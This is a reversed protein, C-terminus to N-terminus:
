ARAIGQAHLERIFQREVWASGRGKVEEWGIGTIEKVLRYCASPYRRSRFAIRCLSLREREAAITWALVTAWEGIRHLPPLGERKLLRAVKFRNALGLHRAVDDASGIPGETLLIAELIARPFLAMQPRAKHMALLPTALM